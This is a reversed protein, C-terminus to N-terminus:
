SSYRNEQKEEEQHKIALATATHANGRISQSISKRNVSTGFGVSSTIYELLIGAGSNRPGEIASSYGEHIPVEVIVMVLQLSAAQPSTAARPKNL